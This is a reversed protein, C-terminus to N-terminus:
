IFLQLCKLAALCLVAIMLVFSVKKCGKVGISRSILSDKLHSNAREVTTRVTCREQKAPDLPPCDNNKRTNPDIIPIRGRRRIFGTLLKQIM